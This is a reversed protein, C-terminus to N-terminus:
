GNILMELQKNDQSFRRQSVLIVLEDGEKIVTDGKPTISIGDREISVVICHKGWDVDMIRKRSIPSGVPVTFTKIVKEDEKQFTPKADEHVIKELMAEYFPSVGILNSLAYSTLTTVAIPLLNRMDGTLEFGLIIGTIPARVISGFFGAMGIIVFDEWLVPDLNFTNVSATAFVAGIYSGLVCMPYLTGGPAGCAFCIAGFLFKAVLLGIMVKLEPRDSILYNVMSHGGCLVQPLVLGVAGSILFVCILKICQPIKKIGQYWDKLKLMIVNYLCGLLGLVIGLIILLWYYRLPFTVADYDFITEQTFFFKSTYDAVVAAVIGMLLLSKDLTHSLEELVFMTGAIPANFAAAMGAGAGCSLMRRETTKDAKTAKAVGKAAMAGLQVSPGERGLSLGGFVSLTGSVLKVAIVRWWSPSIYGKLESAVQPIGSGMARPEFKGSYYVIVALLGLVAFWLVTYLPNGKVTELVKMTGSEVIQLLFRYLVSVLGAFVGVEIGRILLFLSEKRHYEIKRYTSKKKEKM